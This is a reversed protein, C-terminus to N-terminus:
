GVKLSRMPLALNSLSTIPNHLYGPRVKLSLQTCLVLPCPSSIVQIAHTRPYLFKLLHPIRDSSSLWPVVHMLTSIEKDSTALMPTKVVGHRLRVYICRWPRMPPVKIGKLILYSVDIRMSSPSKEKHWASYWLPAFVELSCPLRFAFAPYIRLPFRFRRDCVLSMGHIEYITEYITEYNCLMNM